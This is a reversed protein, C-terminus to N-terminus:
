KLIKHVIIDDVYHGAEESFHHMHITGSITFGCALLTNLSAKNNSYVYTRAIKVGEQALQKLSYHTLEKGINKGRYNKDVAATMFASHNKYSNGRKGRLVGVVEENDTDVALYLYINDDELWDELENLGEIRTFGVQANEKKLEQFLQYIKEIDRFLAIRYEMM